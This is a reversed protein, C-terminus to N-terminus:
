GRTTFRWDRAKLPNGAADRITGTLRVRYSTSAALRAVPDLRWRRGVRLLRTAVPRRTRLNTLAFTARNVGRVVESFLASVTVDRSVRKAGAAPRVATVRPATTDAPAAPAAGAGTLRTSRTTGGATVSLTATRAGGASPTFRVGIECFGGPGLELGSVCRPSGSAAVEYDRAQPGFV